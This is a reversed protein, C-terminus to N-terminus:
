YVSKNVEDELCFHGEKVRNSPLHGASCLLIRGSRYSFCYALCDIISQDGCFIDHHLYNYNQLGNQM